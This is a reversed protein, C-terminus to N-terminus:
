QKPIETYSWKSDVSSPDYIATWQKSSSSNNLETITYTNNQEKVWSLTFSGIAEGNMTVGNSRAIYCSLLTCNERGNKIQSEIFSEVDGGMVTGNVAITTLNTLHGIQGIKTTSSGTMSITELSSPFDQIDGDFNDNTIYGNTYSTLKTCYKLVNCGTKYNASSITISTLEYKNNFIVYTGDTEITVKNKPSYNFDSTSPTGNLAKFRIKNLVQLSDNNVSVREKKWLCNSAM